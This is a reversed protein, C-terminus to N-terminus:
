SSEPGSRRFLTRYLGRLWPRGVLRERWRWATTARMWALEGRLSATEALLREREALSFDTGALPGRRLYAAMARGEQEADPSPRSRHEALVEEYLELYRNVAAAMGAESRVRRSVEAADAADYRALERAVGETTIPERMLRVGFNLAALRALDGGTVIPGLGATDCVIVACGVAMAELTARGKAFVLDYTGLMEEPRAIPRGAALGVVDLAIRAAACAERIAGLGHAEDMHNSFVLARQPSPPLPPRPRFRETDVWNRITVVRDGEIGCEETLRSRGLDDVVVHRLIRPHRPPAEEPPMWGHCVHIAPVGPFRALATMTELHHQGHILDPPALTKDLDDLVPVTARRLEEGVEGQVRSYALPQHGRALLALALDRVYLETGARHALTRNTFLVRM